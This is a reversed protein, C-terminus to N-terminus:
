VKAIQVIGHLNEGKIHKTVFGAPARVPFVRVVGLTADISMVHSIKPTWGLNELVSRFIALAHLLYVPLVSPFETRVAEKALFTVGRDLFQVMRVLVFAFVAIAMATVLLLNASEMVSRLLLLLRQRHRLLVLLLNLPFLVRDLNLLYVALDNGVILSVNLIITHSCLVLSLRGNTWTLM